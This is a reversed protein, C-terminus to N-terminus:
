STSTTWSIGDLRFARLFHPNLFTTFIQSRIMQALRDLNDYPTINDQHHKDYYTLKDNKLILDLSGYPDNGDQWVFHLLYWWRKDAAIVSGMSKTTGEWCNISEQMLTMIDEPHNSFKDTGFSQILNTDDM